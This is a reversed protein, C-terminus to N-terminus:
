QSDLTTRCSAYGPNVICSQLNQDVLLLKGDEDIAWAYTYAKMPAAKESEFGCSSEQAVGATQYYTLTEGTVVVTGTSDTIGGWQCGGAM